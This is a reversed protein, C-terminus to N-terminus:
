SAPSYAEQVQRETNSTRHFLRGLCQQVGGVGHHCTEGNPMALEIRISQPREARIRRFAAENLHLGQTDKADLTAARPATKSVSFLPSQAMATMSVALALMTTLYPRM